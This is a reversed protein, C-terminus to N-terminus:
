EVTVPNEVFMGNLDFSSLLTGSYEGAINGSVFVQEISTSSGVNDCRTAWNTINM